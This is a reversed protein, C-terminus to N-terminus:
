PITSDKTDGQTPTFDKVTDIGTGGSFRDAGQGGSMTDDGADGNLTDNGRGGCLLDNAGSGNLVDDGNQGLLIDTGSLTATASTGPSTGTLTDKSNAGAQLTLAVTGTAKDADTVTLTITAAGTKGSPATLTLTRSAGSGGFTLNASPVLATNSSIASLKLSGTQTLGDPDSVTLNITGSRDNTGCSGGAAVAVTPADNAPTVTVTVTGSAIKAAACNPGAPGCNDPDGRDTVTYDITVAGNFNATPTFTRTSGSGGLSGNAADSAAISASYTLNADATERDSVLDGLNITIPAADEAMSAAGGNAMPDDNVPSVTITFKQEASEADDSADNPTGGDDKAKVTVTASGNKNAQPTYTLTGSTGDSAISPKASFLQDNDNTVVFSVNQGTENAPGASIASAWSVSQAESDEAVTQNGGATFSPADNVPEVTIGVTVPASDADHVDRAKYTFSDPGNYNANPTYSFSGDRNLTFGNTAAHSPGSVLVAGLTDGSDPDKDNGLVGPKAVSLPNDEHTTYSDAVATPASNAIFTVTNDTSTSATNGNGGVDTAANAPVSVIVTGDRTMGSVAVNYSTPGGTVVATTAGATGSLTVDSDTFGSVPENFLATFNIPSASTPDDTQSSSQNITVTPPPDVEFSGIDCANGQPRSVGRQDQTFTSGCGNIGQPIADIAPSDAKLRYTPTPGGYSGLADLKPDTVGTKDGTQNFAGTANGNGILNYGNSVFSNTTGSVFDVDTSVNASVITSLVETRANASGLSAVGSGTGSSSAGNKTITSHEVVTLGARNFVGGGRTADNDGITSNTITTTGTSYIGGGDGFGFLTGLNNDVTSGALTL